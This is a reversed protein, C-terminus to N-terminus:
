FYYRYALQFQREVLNTNNNEYERSPRESDIWNFETMIFNSSSLQYRYSLTVAKGSEENNDGYTTDLDDVAFHEVRVAFHHSKIRHNLMIFASDYDNDVVSELLPSTMLTSGKMYQSILSLNKNLKLQFGLHVFETTWTYQGKEVLGRKANNDYYGINLKIKNGYHWQGVLHTGWRHDLEIFPDSHAAQASLMGDRAPFNQVTLKEQLLTQRSSMTWGHWALMAGATDNNQFLSLDIMFNHTSGSFKGLKEISLSAGTHRLEEGVWTNIASSNLTYPSSWATAINELSIKPYFLGAKARYRWGQSTPISKYQLFAETLGANTAADDNYGNMVIRASISNEWAAQYQVAVQGISLGIGQDNGFKGYDGSLYTDLKAKSDLYGVRLDLLGKISQEVAISSGSCCLAITFVLLRM